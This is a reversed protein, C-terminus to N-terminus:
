LPEIHLIKNLLKEKPSGLLAWAASLEGDADVCGSMWTNGATDVLRVGSRMLNAARPSVKLHLTWERGEPDMPYLTLMFDPNSDITLTVIDAPAAAKLVIQTSIDAEIMKSYLEAQMVSHEFYLERRAAPSRLLARAERYSLGSRNRLVERLREVQLKEVVGESEVSEPQQNLTAALLKVASRTDTM